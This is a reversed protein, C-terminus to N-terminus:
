PTINSSTAPYGDENAAAEAEVRETGLAIQEQFSRVAIAREFQLRFLPRRLFLTYARTEASEAMANRHGEVTGPDPRDGFKIPKYQKTFKVKRSVDGRKLKNYQELTLHLHIGGRGMGIGHELAQTTALDKL